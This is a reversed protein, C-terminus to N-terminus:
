FYYESRPFYENTQNQKSYNENEKQLFKKSKEPEPIIAWDAIYEVKNKIKNTLNKSM